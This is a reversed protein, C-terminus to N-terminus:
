LCTCFSASHVFAVPIWRMCAYPYSFVSERGLAYCICRASKAKAIAAEVHDLNDQMDGSEDSVLVFMMQRQGSTAYNRFHQITTGVATCMKEEGTEDDMTKWKGLITNQATAALNLCILILFLIWKM